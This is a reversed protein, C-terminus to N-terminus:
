RLAAEILPIKDEKYYCAKGRTKDPALGLRRIARWITTTEKGLRRAIAGASLPEPSTQEDATSAAYTM